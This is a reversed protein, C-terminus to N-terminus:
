SEAREALRPLAVAAIEAVRDAQSNALMRALTRPAYEADAHRVYGAFEVLVDTAEDLTGDFLDGNVPDVVRTAARVLDGMTNIPTM